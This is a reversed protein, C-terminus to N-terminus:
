SLYESNPENTRIAPRRGESALPGWWLFNSAAPLPIASGDAGKAHDIADNFNNTAIQILVACILALASALPDFGGTSFALACGALVPIVAAGLTHPRAALIWPNM